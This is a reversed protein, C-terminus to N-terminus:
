AKSLRKWALATLTVGITTVIAIALLAKLVVTGAPWGLVLARNADTLYSLPNVKAVAQMWGPLSAVPVFASAAFMLPFLFMFGAVEATEANKTAVGLALFIWTLSWAFLAALAIMAAAGLLSGKFRFGFVAMGLAVMILGQVTSRLVDSMSRAVLVSGRSIPLSRFRDIVGTNLDTAIGVASQVANQAVTVILIAPLLYDIYNVHLREIGADEGAGPVGPQVTHPVPDAARTSFFALQPVRILKLLNRQTLVLVETLKSAREDRARGQLAIPADTAATMVTMEDDEPQHLGCSRRAVDPPPPSNTTSMACAPSHSSCTTSRPSTSNCGPSHSVATTSGRVIPAVDGAGDVPVTVTCTSNRRGGGLPQRAPTAPRACCTATAWRCRWSTVASRPSLEAATGEAIMLGADLVGIRDALRDAEELYQTTLLVTTGLDVLEAIVDWLEVRSSPDLGTTPEDLFLVEPQGVLSPGSTSDAACEAATRPRVGNRPTPSISASSCSARSRADATAKPMGLLRGIMRLNERGTLDEDVAAYQGTLGIRARVQKADREVDFGAVSAHGAAPPVLTTLINVLTTKGVGNHGLLGYVTGAEIELDVGRLAYVSKAGNGFRQEVGTARIAVGGSQQIVNM